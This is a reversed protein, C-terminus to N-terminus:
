GAVPPLSVRCSEYITLAQSPFSQHDNESLQAPASLRQLRFSLVDYLSKRIESQDLDHDDDVRL